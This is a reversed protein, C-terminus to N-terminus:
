PWKSVVYAVRIAVQGRLDSSATKLGNVIVFVIDNFCYMAAPEHLIKEQPYASNRNVILKFFSNQFVTSPLLDRVKLAM